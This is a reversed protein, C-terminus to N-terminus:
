HDRVITVVRKAYKEVIRNLKQRQSPTVGFLGLKGTLVEAIEGAMGTLDYETIDVATIVPEKMTILTMFKDQSDMM